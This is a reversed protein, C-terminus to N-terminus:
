RVEIAAGLPRLVAQPNHFLQQQLHFIIAIVIGVMVSLINPSMLVVSIRLQVREWGSPRNEVADSAVKSTCKGLRYKWLGTAFRKFADFMSRQTAEAGQPLVEAGEQLRPPEGIAGVEMRRLEMGREDHGEGQPTHTGNAVPGLGRDSPPATPINGLQVDIAAAGDDVTSHAADMTLSVEPQTMGHFHESSPIQADEISPPSVEPQGTLKIELTDADGIAFFGWGYFCIQLRLRTPIYSPLQWHACGSLNDPYKKIIPSGQYGIPFTLSPIDTRGVIESYDNLEPFGFM